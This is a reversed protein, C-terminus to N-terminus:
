SEVRVLGRERVVRYAKDDGFRASLLSRNLAEPLCSAFKSTALNALDEDTLAPPEAPLALFAAHLQGATLTSGPRTELCLEDLRFREQLQPRLAAALQRNCRQGAFTWLTLTGDPNSQLCNQVATSDADLWAFEARM